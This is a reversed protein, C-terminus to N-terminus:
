PSGGVWHTFDFVLSSSCCGGHVMGRCVRCLTKGREGSPPLGQPETPGPCSHLLCMGLAVGSAGNNMTGEQSPPASTLVPLSLPPFPM